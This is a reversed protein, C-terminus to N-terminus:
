SLLSRLLLFDRPRAPLVGQGTKRNEPKRGPGADLLLAAALCGREEGDSALFPNGSHTPLNSDAAEM